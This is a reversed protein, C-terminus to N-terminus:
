LSSTFLSSFDTEYAGFGFNFYGTFMTIASFILSVTENTYGGYFFGLGHCSSLSEGDAWESDM